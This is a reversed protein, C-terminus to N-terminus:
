FSYRMEVGYTRPEGLQLYTSNQWAGFDDRPDAGFYLGHVAYDEDSLNRGWLTIAIAGSQWQASANVLHYDGLKGDHYYGYYSDDRGELEIRGSWQEGFALRTGINYQYAPSKAQDRDQKDVFQALDLDFAEISDVENHLWGLNAFLQLYTNVDFTTELEAGYSNTDSTSDLYGIWLGAAEDWMWNELQAHDRHAHFLALSLALRDNLQQTRLGIEKNLLTEDDFTLKDDTFDQFVPSMFPQNASATTNVGGPKQSSAITAYLMTNDDLSYRASLEGNWLNNSNDSSFANSDSYDDEFRELRAGAILTLQTTVAYQYEGYVAYRDTDYDSNSASDGYWISPRQYDLTERSTNAYVGLLYRDGESATRDNDGLLRIDAIYRDRKRDFIEQTTDNGSSCAFRECFADSVWDADFSQHLDADLYSLSAAISHTDDLLWNGASSFTALKQSDNGPQDTNTTRNNDLSWPDYGNNADFYSASFDYQATESPTWRLRGRSTLEDINNTNDSDQQDNDYFGDSNNQQVALRASLTDNLPGSLVLGLNNSAYNGVGGSLEGEFHETPANSRLFIMGAHGSAGFRTGQPGRLVEVQNIDFLMGANATDGLELDDLMVGVAPYYKPDYYQELDGVGRIQVFRARSAGASWNVNPVANLIDQLHQAARETITSEPVVSISGIAEMLPTDRFKATVLIEELRTDQTSFEASVTPSSLSLIATAILALPLCQTHIM